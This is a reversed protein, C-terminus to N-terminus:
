FYVICWSRLLLINSIQLKRGNIRFHFYIHFVEKSIVISLKNCSIHVDIEFCFRMNMEKYNVFRILIRYIEFKSLYFRNYKFSIKYHWRRSEYLIFHYDRRLGLKLHHKVSYNVGYKDTRRLTFLLLQILHLYYCDTFM